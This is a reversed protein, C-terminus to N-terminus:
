LDKHGKGPLVSAWDKGAILFMEGVLCISFLMTALFTLAYVKAYAKVLRLRSSWDFSTWADLMSLVGSGGVIEPIVKGGFSRDFPVITEETDPLLSAQVRTLTVSAPLVFLFSLAISLAAIGFGELALMAQARPSLQATYKADKNLGAVIALKLPVLATIQEAVALVATPVAVKRWMKVSPIRRFWFKPSPESIVIHTWTLPLLAVIVSGIVTAVGRPVFPIFILMNAIWQVILANAVFVWFGRFRGSVGGLHKITQRFSSTIYPPRAAAQEPDKITSDPDETALPEFIIAEQPSEIMLLTPLIHGFTYNITFLVVVFFIFTVGLLLAGWIPMQSPEGENDAVAVEFGRRLLHTAAEM